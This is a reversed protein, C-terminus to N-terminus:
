PNLNGRAVPTLGNVQIIKEYISFRPRKGEAQQDRYTQKKNVKATYIDQNTILYIDFKGDWLGDKYFDMFYIEDWTTSPGFSTLDPLVSCAKVQIRKKTNMNYADFSTDVKKGKTKVKDASRVAGMELCFASESLGEPLNVGRASVTGLTNCLIRWEKYIQFLKKRDSEEFELIPAVFDGEPLSLTENKAIM